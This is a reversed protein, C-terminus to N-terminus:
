QVVFDVTAITDVPLAVADVTHSAEHHFGDEDVAMTIVVGTVPVAATIAPSSLTPDDFTVSPDSATWTFRANSPFAVDTGDAAKASPVCHALRGVTIQFDSMDQVGKWQPIIRFDVHRIRAHHHHHHRHHCALWEELFELFLRLWNM